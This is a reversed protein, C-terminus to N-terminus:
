FMFCMGRDEYINDEKRFDDRVIVKKPSQKETFRGIKRNVHNQKVVLHLRIDSKHKIFQIITNSELQM